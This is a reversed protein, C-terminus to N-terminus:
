ASRAAAPYAARPLPLPSNSPPILKAIRKQFGPAPRKRARLRRRGSPIGAPLRAAEGPIPACVRRSRCCGGSEVRERDDSAAQREIGDPREGFGAGKRECVRRGAGGDEARRRVRLDRNRRGDPGAGGPPFHQLVALEDGEILRVQRQRDDTNHRHLMAKAEEDCRGTTLLAGYDNREWGQLLQELKEKLALEDVSDKYSFIQVGVRFEKDLFRDGVTLVIDSGAEAPGEQLKYSYGM